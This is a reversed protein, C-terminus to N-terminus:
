SCLIKKASEDLIDTVFPVDTERETERNASFIDNRTIGDMKFKRAGAMLQQLGAGLKDALTWLAIAGLPINKMEEKGVKKEVDYYGAFIEDPSSGYTTVSKPLEDWNGNLREKDQPHLVGQINSGLYGPIM